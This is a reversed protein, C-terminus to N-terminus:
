LVVDLGKKETVKEPLVFKLPCLGSEMWNVCLGAAKWKRLPSELYLLNYLDVIRRGIPSYNLHKYQYKKIARRKRVRRVGTEFSLCGNKSPFGSVVVVPFWQRGKTAKAGKSDGNVGNHDNLRRLLNDTAGVYTRKGDTSYLIYCVWNCKVPSIHNTATNDTTLTTM